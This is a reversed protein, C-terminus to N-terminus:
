GPEPKCREIIVALRDIYPTMTNDLAYNLGYIDKHIQRMDRLLEELDALLLRSIIAM